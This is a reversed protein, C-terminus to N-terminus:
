ISRCISFPYEAIGYGAHELVDLARQYDEEKTRIYDTNFTLVSFIGINNEALIGSIRSLIGMLSFDLVGQHPIGEM